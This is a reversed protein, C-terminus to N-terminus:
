SPAAGSGPAPRVIHSGKQDLEMVVLGRRVQGDPGLAIQGDAGNFGDPRMLSEAAFGQQAVLRAITVADFAVSTFERPQARYKASYMRNFPGRAAPDPTAFWAGALAGLKADDRAWLGPGLVRVGAGAPGPPAIDYKALPLAQMLPAGAAGILLTDFPLPPVPPAPTALDPQLLPDAKPHRTATDAVDNLATALPTAGPYRVIRPAELGGTSAQLGTALADGFPNQPLVAAVRGRGDEQVAQMLRRVQQAPTIGLPWVGPQAQAEDSTFALMPVNAARTLPAVAQTESLTLPGIIIGAGAALALRAAAEAGKATGGTDRVDLAPSDPLDLALQAAQLLGRGLEANAGTLPVLLGIKATPSVPGGPPQGTVYGPGRPAAVCASLALGAALGFWSRRHVM